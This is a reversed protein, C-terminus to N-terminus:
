FKHCPSCKPAKNRGSPLSLGDVARVGPFVKVLERAEVLHTM